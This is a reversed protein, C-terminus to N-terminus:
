SLGLVRFRYLTDEAKVPMPAAATIELATGDDVTATAYAEIDAASFRKERGRLRYYELLVGDPISGHAGIVSELIDGAAGYDIEMTSADYFDALTGRRRGEEILPMDRAYLGLRVSARIEGGPVSLHSMGRFASRAEPETMRNVLRDSIVLDLTRRLLDPVPETIDHRVIRCRDHSVERALDACMRPSFDLVTVLAGRALAAHVLARTTAGIVGVRSGSEVGELFAEVDDGSPGGDYGASWYLHGIVDWAAAKPNTM